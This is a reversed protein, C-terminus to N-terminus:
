PFNQRGLALLSLLVVHRLFNLLFNHVVFYYLFLPRFLGFLAYRGFDLFFVFNDVQM